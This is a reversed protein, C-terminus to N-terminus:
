QPHTIELYPLNTWPAWCCQPLAVTSTRTWWYFPCPCESEVPTTDSTGPVSTMPASSASASTIAPSLRLGTLRPGVGRPDCFPCTPLKNWSDNKGDYNPRDKRIEDERAGKPDEDISPIGKMEDTLSSGGRTTQNPTNNSGVWFGIEFPAGGLKRDHRIIEAQALLRMLRRAQQLTLLRLPYHIMATVGRHKGRLRDLFLAYILLGFFAESKGGGTSMYLLSASGEDFTQDFFDEYGPVRSALTPV